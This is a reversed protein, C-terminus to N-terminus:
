GKEREALAHGCRACFLDGAPLNAGCAPCTQGVPTQPPLMKGCRVCFRDGAQCLQGCAPCPIRRLEGVSRAIEDASAPPAPRFLPYLIVAAAALALVGFLAMSM